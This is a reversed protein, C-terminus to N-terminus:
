ENFNDKDFEGKKWWFFGEPSTSMVGVIQKTTLAKNGEVQVGSIALRRGEDIRFVLTTAAGDKVTDVVVKALFYGESQYLADIRAVDKAVQAPNIPKGILIDVRDKVSSASVKEAGVVSVESLIRRETLNFILVSKGGITDCTATGNAEFNNTAYLNKLAQTVIRGSITSKPTIGIDSRVDGEPIRSLGRFAVSDPTACPGTAASAAASSPQQARVAPLAAVVGILSALLRAPRM